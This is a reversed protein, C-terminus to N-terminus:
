QRLRELYTRNCITKNWIALCRRWKCDTHGYPETDACPISSSLEEMSPNRGYTENECPELMGDGILYILEKIFRIYKEPQGRKTLEEDSAAHSVTGVSSNTPEEVVLSYAYM